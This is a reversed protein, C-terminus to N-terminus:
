PGKTRLEIKLRYFFKKHVQGAARRQEPTELLNDDSDLTEIWKNFYEMKRARTITKNSLGSKARLQTGSIWDKEKRRGTKKDEEWGITQRIVILILRLEADSMNPMDDWLKNPVQTTNPMFWDNKAKKTNDTNKADLYIVKDRYKNQIEEWRRQLQDYNYDDAYINFTRKIEDFDWGGFVDLRQIPFGLDDIEVEIEKIEGGVNKKFVRKM